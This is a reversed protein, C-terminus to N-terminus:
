DEHEKMIVLLATSGDIWEMKIEKLDMIKDLVAIYCQRERVTDGEQMAPSPAMALLRGSMMGDVNMHFVDKMKRNAFLIKDTKIDKIFVLEELYNYGELVGLKATQERRAAAQRVLLQQLLQCIDNTFIMDQETWIRNKNREAVYLVGYPKKDCILQYILSSKIGYQLSINKAGENMHQEDVVLFGDRRIQERQSVYDASVWLSDTFVPTTDNAANWRSIQELLGNETKRLIFVDSAELYQGAKEILTEATLSNDAIMEHMIKTLAEKRELEQQLALEAIRSQKADSVVVSSYYMYKSIKDAFFQLSEQMLGLKVAEGRTYSCLIWTGIYEKDLYLPAGAMRSASNGPQMEMLCYQQRNIIGDVLEQYSRQFEPREFMDYFVGLNTMPGVPKTILRGTKDVIATYLSSLNFFAEAMEQLEEKPIYFFPDKEIEKENMIYDIKKELGQQKELLEFELKKEQTVDILLFELEVVGPEPYSIVIDSRIWLEGNQSKMRFMSTVNGHQQEIANLITRQTEKYDEEVIYDRIKVEGKRLEECPLGLYAGNESVYVVRSHDTHYRMVMVVSRNHEIATQLYHNENENTKEKDVDFLLMEIGVPTGKQNYIIHVSARVYRLEGKETVIRFVNSYEKTKRRVCERFAEKMKERDGRYVIDEYCLERQYFQEGTYGYININKSVYRPKWEGNEQYWHFAVIRAHNIIRELTVSGIMLEARLEFMVMYITRGEEQYENILGSVYYEKDQTHLLIRHWIISKRNHLKEWFDDTIMFKDPQMQISTTNQGLVLRAEYNIALVEGTDEAFIVVPYEIHSAFEIYSETRSIGMRVDGKLM